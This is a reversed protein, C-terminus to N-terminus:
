NKKWIFTKMARWARDPLKHKKWKDVGTKQM